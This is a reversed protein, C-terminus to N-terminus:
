YRAGIKKYKGNRLKKFTYFRLLLNWDCNAHCRSNQQFAPFLNLHQTLLKPVFPQCRLRRYQETAPLIQRSVILPKPTDIAGM